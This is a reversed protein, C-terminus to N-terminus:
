TVGHRRGARRVGLAGAIMLMALSAPEPVPESPAALQGYFQIDGIQVSNVGPALPDKVAPFVLRYSLFSMTNDVKVLPGAEFRADPLELTGADIFEWPESIGQGFNESTIPVNTGYLEWSHPDRGAFDNATTIVFSDVITAGVGPTVIFGAQERGFNLYKTYPAGDLAKEPGEAPPSDAESTPFMIAVPSMVQTLQPMLDPPM